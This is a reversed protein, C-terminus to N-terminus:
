NILPILIELFPILPVSAAIGFIVLIGEWVDFVVDPFRFGYLFTVKISLTTLFIANIFRASKKGILRSLLFRNYLITIVMIMGAALLYHNGTASDTSKLKCILAYATAYLAITGLYILMHMICQGVRKISLTHSM